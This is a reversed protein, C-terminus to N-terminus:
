PTDENELSMRILVNGTMAVKVTADALTLRLEHYYIDPKLAATDAGDITIELSSDTVEIGDTKTKTIFVDEIVSYPSRALWWEIAIATSLDYGTADVLLVKDEARFLQFNQNLGASLAIPDPTM